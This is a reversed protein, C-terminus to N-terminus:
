DFDEADLMAVSGGDSSLIGGAVEVEELDGDEDVRLFGAEQRYKELKETRYAEAQNIFERAAAWGDMVCIKGNKNLKSQALSAFHHALDWIFKTDRTALLECTMEPSPPAESNSGQMGMGIDGPPMPSPEETITTTEREDLPEEEKPEQVEKEEGEEKDKLLTKKTRRSFKEIGPM